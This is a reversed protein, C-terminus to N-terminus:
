DDCWSSDRKRERVRSPKQAGKEIPNPQSPRMVVIGCCFCVTVGRLISGGTLSMPCHNARHRSPMRQKSM